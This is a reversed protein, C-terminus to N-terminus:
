FDIQWSVGLIYQQSSDRQGLEPQAAYSLFDSFLRILEQGCCFVVEKCFLRCGLHMISLWSSGDKGGGRQHM